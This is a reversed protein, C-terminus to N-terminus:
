GASKKKKETKGSDAYSTNYHSYYSYSYNKRASLSDMTVGNIICGVVPCNTQEIQQKAMNMERARTRRYRAILVAGDCCRAVEAADIVMGIPAADLVALDFNEGCYEVLKQFVQSTLLPLANNTNRGAPILYLNPINTEYIIDEMGCQDTLYHTLGYHHEGLDIRNRSVMMSRRIDVDILVVRKGRKALANAIQMTLFSKGESSSCSTFVIRKLNRGAFSLNSCITNLAETGMYDLEKISHIVANKM